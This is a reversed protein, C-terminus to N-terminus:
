KHFIKCLLYKFAQRRCYYALLLTSSILVSFTGEVLIEIVLNFHFCSMIITVLGCSVVIFVICVLVDIFYEQVKENIFKKKYLVFPEYWFSSVIRAISTALLIGPLGILKGMFFSLVLNIIGTYFLINQTEKFIGSTNRYIWIPYLVIPLFFDLALAFVSLSDIVFDRGLWLIIVDDIVMLIGVTLVVAVSNFILRLVDFFEKIKEETATANLNGVGTTFSNYLIDLFKTIAYKIVLYNSYIGVTVTNILYSILLNDTSNLFVSGVRYSMMSKVDNFIKRKETSTLTEAAKEKWNIEFIKDAKRSLCYNLLFTYVIQVVLYLMFDPKILLLVIQTINMAIMSITTYFSILYLQQNARILSSKYVYLYSVASNLVYLMYYVKLYPIDEPTNVIVDLFPLLLMGILMVFLAIYNYVKKYFRTLARIESINNEAVPKYLSYIVVNGIGLEALSLMSLINSFLGNIGLYTAGLANIFITRSIFPLITQIVQTTVGMVSNKIFYESRNKERM